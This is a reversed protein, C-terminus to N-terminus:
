LVSARGAVPEIGKLVVVQVDDVLVARREADRRQHEVRGERRERKRARLLERLVVREVLMEDLSHIEVVQAREVGLRKLMITFYDQIQDTDNKSAKLTDHGPSVPDAEVEVWGAFKRRTIVTMLREANANVYEWAKKKDQM